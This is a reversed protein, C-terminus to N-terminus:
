SSFSALETNSRELETNKSQLLANANKIESIDTCVGIYQIPRGDSNRKFVMDRSLQCTWSDNNKLRFEVTEVEGDQADRIRKRQKKLEDLDDLHILPTFLDTTAVEFEEPTYGTAELSKGNIFIVRE